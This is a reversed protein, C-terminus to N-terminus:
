CNAGSLTNCAADMETTVDGSLGTLTATGVTIALTLALAYEVLTVGDDSTRFTRLKKMLESHM